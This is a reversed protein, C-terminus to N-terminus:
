RPVVTQGERLSENGQVVIAVGPELGETVAIRGNFSLGTKVKRESVKFEGDSKDVQWVTVRGDPFRLLADRPVVVAEIGTEIKLVASASMGPALRLDNEELAVRVTFARTNADTVPIMRDVKGQFRQQPFADLMVEVSVSNALKSFATQSVQFDIYLQETAVLQLVAAGPQIWEGVEARRQAIVGDFPAVLRYAKLLRQQRKEKAKFGSLEARKIRVEADLSDLANKSVTQKRALLQADALRREADTLEEKAKLTEAQALGLNLEALEADLRLLEGGRKVVDGIEVAITEVIGSVETSLQASRPAVVTGTLPIEEILSQQEAHQVVVAPGSAFAPLFLGMFILCIVLSIVHSGTNRKM